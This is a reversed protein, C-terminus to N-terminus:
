TKSGRCPLDQAIFVPMSRTILGTMPGVARWHHCPALAVAGGEVLARAADDNAAWEEYRIACLIAAQM